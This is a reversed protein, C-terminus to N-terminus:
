HHQRHLGQRNPGHGSSAGGRPLVTGKRQRRLRRRFGGRGDARHPRHSEGGANNVLIDVHGGGLEVARRALRRASAEDTLPAAVFDAEGGAARIKDAVWEGRTEDRGSAIVRAGHAALDIAIARGIGSNAGTVLATTGSLDTAM